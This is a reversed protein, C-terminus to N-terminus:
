KFFSHNLKGDAIAQKALDRTVGTIRRIGKAVATEEVLVFAEAEQTNSIHTGGCFEVSTDKGVSVVRVPDPYIEGFVARVGEIKKAEDLPMTEDKVEISDEIVQQVINEAAAVEKAKMAKKYSFDFRLKEDNCLSGRQEVGDGLVERLAANLVHTMTHNPTVKRRRDYDVKSIVESGIKLDVTESLITCTHLLYGAYSQVDKVDLQKGDIELVGLDAEQGGAEAYFSSKDLIVGVTDGKEVSMENEVFGDSTFIAQVSATPEVDLDYKFADDTAEIGQDALWATQEAILELRELAVEGDKKKSKFRAERSRTKQAEMEKEFGKTDVTLGSEDAMLQTLDVPFGLTDYMFFAKEGSIQKTKDAVLEEELDKFFKIGRDLMTDFSKEEETITSVIAERNQILEPYTEGYNELVVLNVFIHNTYPIFM